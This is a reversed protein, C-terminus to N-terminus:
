RAREAEAALTGWLREVHAALAALSGDNLVVVDALARREADTSQTAIRSRAAEPALGRQALRDLRTALPTEVVIVVDFIDAMGGEALLPVDYVGVRGPGAGEIRQASTRAVEPLLIAELDDRASTDGFVVAALAARDLSGDPALVGQGFREVVRALGPTGPEVVERAIRDADVVLAGREGLMRAVTSKGSGIGGTLGVRLVRGGRPVSLRSARVHWARHRQVLGVLEGIVATLVEVTRETPLTEQPPVHVFGTLPADHSGPSERGSLTTSRAAFPEADLSAAASLAGYLTANCVFRGADDSAEVPLGAAQLRGLLAHVPWTTALVAPGGEIVPDGDPRAGANDVIRAREENAARTEIRVSEATGHLGVLVVVDPRTQRILAAARQPAQAFTVPLLQRDLVAPGGPLDLSEPLRGVAEWSANTAAGDFPEFGTVLVRVPGTSTHEATAPGETDPDATGPSAAWLLGPASADWRTEDASM